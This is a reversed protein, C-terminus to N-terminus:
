VFKGSNLIGGPDLGKKIDQMVRMAAPNVELSLYEKKGLGIGHEQSLTGGLEIAIRFTEEAAKQFGRAEEEKDPDFCFCAHLNGDGAHCLLVITIRYKEALAGVRRIITPIQSIPVTANESAIYKYKKYIGLIGLRRTMWLQDSEEENSAVQIHLPNHDLCFREIRQAQAAVSDEFGDVDILLLGEADLPLGFDFSEEATRIFANDMLELSAPHIGSGMMREVVEGADELRRFGVLLTRRSEPKPLLKLIIKTIVGLTGESGCLFRTLDYGTVNKMQRGGTQLVEGSALVVELGLVYDRTVGYKVARPGGANTAVNGGLTCSMQSAPDPPYFLGRKEVEQQFDFTVVGPEVVGVRDREDVEILQNMRRLSLVIGGEAPVCMGSLGTGAGRPIIPIEDRTALKLIAAVESVNGPVIAVEPKKRTFCGISYVVRDELRDLCNEEGVISRLEKLVANTIM